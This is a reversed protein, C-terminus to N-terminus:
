DYILLDNRGCDAGCFPNFWPSIFLFGAINDRTRQTVHWFRKNPLAKIPSPAVNPTKTEKGM